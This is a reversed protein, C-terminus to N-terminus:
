HLDAIGQFSKHEKAYKIIGALFIISAQQLLKSQM